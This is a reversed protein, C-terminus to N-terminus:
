RGNSLDIYWNGSMGKRVRDLTVPTTKAFGGIRRSRRSLTCLQEDAVVEEGVWLQGEMM